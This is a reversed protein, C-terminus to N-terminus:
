RRYSKGEFFIRSYSGRLRDAIYEGYKASLEADTLNSALVTPLGRDERLRLLTILPESINGYDKRENQERGLEDILVIGKSQRLRRQSDEDLAVVQASTYMAPTEGQRDLQTVTYYISRLMTTKGLGYAGYLLLGPRGQGLLWRAVSLCHAPAQAMSRGSAEVLSAYAAALTSKAQEETAPLRYTRIARERLIRRHLIEM